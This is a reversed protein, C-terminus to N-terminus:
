AIVEYKSACTPRSSPTSSRMPAVRAVGEDEHDGVVALHEALAARPELELGELPRHAHRHDGGPGPQRPAAGLFAADRQHVQQRGEVVQDRVAIGHRRTSGSSPSLRAPMSCPVSAVRPSSTIISNRPSPTYAGAQMRRLSPNLYTWQRWSGGISNSRFRRDPRAADVQRAARARRARPAGACRPESASPSRRGRAACGRIAAAAATRAALRQQLAAPGRPVVLWRVVGRPAVHAARHIRVGRRRLRLLAQREDGLTCGIM